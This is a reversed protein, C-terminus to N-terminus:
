STTTSLTEDPSSSSSSSLLFYTLGGIGFLALCTGGAVLGTRATPSLSKWWGMFDIPTPTPTPTPTPDPNPTPGPGPDPTPTSGCQIYQHMDSIDIQHDNVFKNFIICRNGECSQHRTNSPVQQEALQQDTCPLFWCGVDAGMVPQLEKWKPDLYRNICRCTPDSLVPDLPQKDDKYEKCWVNMVSDAIPKGTPTEAWDKCLQNSIMNNCIPRGNDDKYTSSIEPCNFYEARQSCMKKMIEDDFWNPEQRTKREQELWQRTAEADKSVAEMDYICSVVRGEPSSASREARKIGVRGLTPCESEAIKSCKYTDLPFPLTWCKTPDELCCTKGPEKVWTLPFAPNVTCKGCWPAEKQPDSEHNRGDFSRQERDLVMETSTYNVNPGPSEERNDM